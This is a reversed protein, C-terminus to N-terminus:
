TLDPVATKYLPVTHSNVKTDYTNESKKKNSNEHCVTMYTYVQVKQSLSWRYLIIYYLIIYYLIIYYLIIYYLIIYYLIIYYLIIYYLIIYDQHAKSLLWEVRLEM